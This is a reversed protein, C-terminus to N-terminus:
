WHGPWIGIDHVIDEGVEQIYTHENVKIVDQNVRVAGNIMFTMDM